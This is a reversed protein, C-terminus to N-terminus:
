QRLIIHAKMKNNHSIPTDTILPGEIYGYGSNSSDRIEPANKLCRLRPDFFIKGVTYMLASGGAVIGGIVIMQAIIYM